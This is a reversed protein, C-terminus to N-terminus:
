EDGWEQEDEWVSFEPKVVPHLEYGRRHKRELRSVNFKKIAERFAERAFASRTTHLKKVVKDVAKVTTSELRYHKSVNKLEFMIM